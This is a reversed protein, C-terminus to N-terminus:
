PTITVVPPSTYGAGAATVIITAIRGKSITAKATAGTGGGGTITVRPPATYGFGPYAVTISGVTAGSLTAFATAGGTMNSVATQLDYINDFALRQHQNLLEPSVPAVKGDISKVPHVPYFREKQLTM